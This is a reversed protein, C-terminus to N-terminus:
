DTLGRTQWLSRRALWLSVSMFGSVRFKLSRFHAQAELLAAEASGSIMRPLSSGEKEMGMIRPENM